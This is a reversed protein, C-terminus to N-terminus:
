RRRRRTRIWYHRWIEHSDDFGPAKIDIGNKRCLSMLHRLWEGQRVKMRSLSKINDSILKSNDPFKEQSSLLHSWKCPTTESDYDAEELLREQNELTEEMLFNKLESPIPINATIGSKKLHNLHDLASLLAHEARQRRYNDTM